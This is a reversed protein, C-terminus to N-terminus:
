LAYVEELDWQPETKPSQSGKVERAGLLLTLRGRPRSAFHSIKDKPKSTCYGQHGNGVQM